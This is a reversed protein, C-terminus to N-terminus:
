RSTASRREPHSALRQFIPTKCSPKASEPTARKARRLSSRVEDRARSSCSTAITSSRPPSTRGARARRHLGVRRLAHACALVHSLRCRSCEAICRAAPLEGAIIALSHGRGLSCSRWAPRPLPCAFTSWVARLRARAHLGNRQCARTRKFHAMVSRGHAAGFRSEGHHFRSRCTITSAATSCPSACRCSKRSRLSTAARTGHLPLVRRRAAAGRARRRSVRRGREDSARVRRQRRRRRHGRGPPRRRRLAHVEVFMGAAPKGLAVDVVHISIGPM